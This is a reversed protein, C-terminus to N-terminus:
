KGEDRDKTTGNHIADKDLAKAMQLLHEEFRHDTGYRQRMEEIVECSPTLGEGHHLIEGFDLLNYSGTAEARKFDRYSDKPIRVYAHHPRGDELVGQVLVVVSLTAIFEDTLADELRERAIRKKIDSM